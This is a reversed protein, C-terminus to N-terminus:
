RTQTDLTAPRRSVPKISTTPPAEQRLIERPLTLYTPGAPNSHAIDLGRDVASDVNEGVELEYEWKTYERVIGHQDAVDQYWHVFISRSGATDENTTLPTRGALILM